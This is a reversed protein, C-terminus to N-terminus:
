DEVLRFPLTNTPNSGDGCSRYQAMMVTGQLRKSDWDFVMAGNTSRNDACIPVKGEVILRWGYGGLYRATGRIDDGAVKATCDLYVDDDSCQPSVDWEDLVTGGKIVIKYTGDLVEGAVAHAIPTPGCALVTLATVFTTTAIAFKAIISM